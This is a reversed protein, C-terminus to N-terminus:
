AAFAVSVEVRVGYRAEVEDYSGSDMFANHCLGHFFCARQDNSVELDCESGEVLNVLLCQPVVVMGEEVLVSLAENGKFCVVEM